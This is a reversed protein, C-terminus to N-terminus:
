AAGVRRRYAALLRAAGPVRMFRLALANLGVDCAACVGLFRNDNACVQWQHVSPAGCRSCPVRRIGRATYPRARGAM